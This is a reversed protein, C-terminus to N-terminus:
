CMLNSNLVVEKAAFIMSHGVSMCYIVPDSNLKCAHLKEFYTEEIASLAKLPYFVVTHEPM